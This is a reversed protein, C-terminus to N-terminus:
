RILINTAPPLIPAANSPRSMGLSSWSARHIDVVVINSIDRQITLKAHTATLGRLNEVVKALPQNTAPWDNVLLIYDGARLGAKEAPSGPLMSVIQPLHTNTNDMLVAGIGGTFHDKVFKEPGALLQQRNSQSPSSGGSNPGTNSFRYLLVLVIALVLLTLTIKRM